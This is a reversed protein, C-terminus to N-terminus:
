EVTEREVTTLLPADGEIRRRWVQVDEELVVPLKQRQRLRQWATLHRSRDRQLREVYELGAAWCLESTRELLRVRQHERWYDTTIVILLGGPRLVRACERYVAAMSAAYRAGDLRGIQAPMTGYSDVHFSPDRRKRVWEPCMERTAMAPELARQRRAVSGYPPSTIIAEVSGAPLPLARADGQWVRVTGSCSWRRQVAAANVACMVAFHAELEGLLVHRGALAALALSGCGAMPDLLLQGPHTYRRVLLDLLALQAKAPHNRAPLLERRM